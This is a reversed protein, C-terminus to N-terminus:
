QGGGARLRRTIYGRAFDVLKPQPNDLLTIIQNDDV